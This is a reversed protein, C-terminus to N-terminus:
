DWGARVVRSKKYSWFTWAWTSWIHSLKSASKSEPSILSSIFFFFLEFTSGNRKSPRKGGGRVTEVLTDASCVVVVVRTYHLEAKVASFGRSDLRSFQSRRLEDTSIFWLVADQGDETCMCVCVRTNTNINDAIVGSSLFLQYCKGSMIIDDVRIYVQM